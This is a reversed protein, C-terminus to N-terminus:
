EVFFCIEEKQKYLKIPEKGHQKRVKVHCCNYWRKEDAPAKASSSVHINFPVHREWIGALFIGFFWTEEGVTERKLSWVQRTFLLIFSRDGSGAAVGAGDPISSPVDRKCVSPSNLPLM